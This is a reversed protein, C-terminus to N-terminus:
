CKFKKAIWYDMSLYKGGGLFFLTLVMIFYMMHHEMGYQLIVPKGMETIEAARQPFYFQLWEMLKALRVSAEATEPAIYYWGHAWHVLYLTGGMLIMLPISIIRVAFGLLLFIAGILETYTVAYAFLEAHQFHLTQDFWKTVSGIDKWKQLGVVWFAPFLYLRIALPALFDIARFADLVRFPFCLIKKLM